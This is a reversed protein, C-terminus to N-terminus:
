HREFVRLEDQCGFLTPLAVPHGLEHWEAKLLDFFSADGTYGGEREGVYVVKRGHFRRLALTAMKDNPPPWILLMTEANTDALHEFSGHEIETWQTVAHESLPPKWFRNRGNDIPSKDVATVPVGRKRLLYSWYGNGCGFDLIGNSGHSLIVDLAQSTPIAYGYRMRFAARALEIHTVPVHSLFCHADSEVPEGLSGPDIGEPRHYAYNVHKVSFDRRPADSVLAFTSEVIKRLADDNGSRLNQKSIKLKVREIGSSISNASIASECPACLLWEIATASRGNAGVRLQVSPAEYRACPLESFCLDCTVKWVELYNHIVQDAPLRFPRAYHTDHKVGIRACIPDANETLIDYM